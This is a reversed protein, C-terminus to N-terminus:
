SKVQGFRRACAPGVLHLVSDVIAAYNLRDLGCGLCTGMFCQFIKGGFHSVDEESPEGSDLRELHGDGLWQGRDWLDHGLSRYLNGEM